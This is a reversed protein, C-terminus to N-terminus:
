QKEPSLARVREMSERIARDAQCVVEFSKLVDNMTPNAPVDQEIMRILHELQEGTPKLTYSVDILETENDPYRYIELLNGKAQHTGRDKQYTIKIRGKPGIFEKTNDTGIAHSWGAEYFGVSGDSLTVTIVGYNYKGEPVTDETVGGVGTVGVVEAGTFWRMVDVYHVGCDIIPSTERILSLDKNWDWSRHNQVMRMIIPKGIVGAHIMEGVKIYTENHRLIHGVLVKVEPHAEALQVFQKGEEYNPAIPKECLVHRGRQICRELIALHTSPYTAIIIIDVQEDDVLKRYDDTYFPANYKQATIRARELNLDCLGYIKVNDRLAVDELHGQGMYGCGILGVNYM